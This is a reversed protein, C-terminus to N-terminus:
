GHNSPEGGRWTTKTDREAPTPPFAFLRLEATIELQGSNASRMERKPELDLRQIAVIKPFQELARVFSLVSAYTGSGTIEVVMQQYSPKAVKPESKKEGDESAKKKLKPAEKPRVGTVTIGHRGGILEVETLLTPLYAMEPVGQELHRLKAQSITLRNQTEELQRNIKKEDKLNKELTELRVSEATRAGYQLSCAGVGALLAVASLGIWIFPNPTPSM